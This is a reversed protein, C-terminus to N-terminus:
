QIKIENYNITINSLNYVKDYNYLYKQKNFFTCHYSYNEPFIIAGTMTTNFFYSLQNINAYLGISYNDNFSNHLSYQLPTRIECYVSSYYLHAIGILCLICIVISLFIEMGKLVIRRM